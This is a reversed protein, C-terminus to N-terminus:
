KATAFAIPAAIACAPPSTSRIEGQLVMRAIM